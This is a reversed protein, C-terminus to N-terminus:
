FRVFIELYGTGYKRSLLALFLVFHRALQKAHCRTSRVGDQSSLVQLIRDMSRILDSFICIMTTATTGRGIFAM